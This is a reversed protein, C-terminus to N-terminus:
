FARHDVASGLTRAPVSCAIVGIVASELSCIKSATFRKIFQARPQLFGADSDWGFRNRIVLVVVVIIVIFDDDLTASIAWDLYIAISFGLSAISPKAGVEPRAASV